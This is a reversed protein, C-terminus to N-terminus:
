LGDRAQLTVGTGTSSSNRITACYVLGYGARNERDTSITTLVTNPASAAAIAVAPVASAPANFCWRGSAGAALYGVYGDFSSVSALGSMTQLAFGASRGSLNMITACYVWGSTSRYELDTSMTRLTVNDEASVASAVVPGLDAYNYHFCYRGTAGGALEGGENFAASGSLSARASITLESGAASSNQVSACYEWGGLGSVYTLDTSLVTMIVGYMSATASVAVAGANVPSGQYMFTFCYYGHAGGALYGADFDDAAGATSLSIVPVPKHQALGAAQAPGTVATAAAFAALPVTIKRLLRM